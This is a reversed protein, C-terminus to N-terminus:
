HWIKWLTHRIYENVAMFCACPKGWSFDSRAWESPIYISISIAHKTLQYCILVILATYTFFPSVYRGTAYFRSRSISEYCVCGPLNTLAGCACRRCYCFNGPQFINIRSVHRSLVCYRLSCLYWALLVSRVFNSRRQSWLVITGLCGISNTLTLLFM